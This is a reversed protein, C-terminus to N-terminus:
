QKGVGLIEFRFLHHGIRFIDGSLLEREGKFKISTGNSSGLDELMYKHNDIDHIIRTHRKSIYPDDPFIIDGIERGIISEKGNLYYINRIIGETTYQSLRAVWKKIPTGFYMVGHEKIPGLGKEAEELIEFLLLQTGILILDRNSLNISERIQIYIGNLSMLDKIFFKNEREIIRAHRPSLYPDDPLLINGQEKGIDTQNGILPFIQGISGDKLITLLRAKNKGADSVSGHVQTPEEKEDIFAVPSQITADENVIPEQDIELGCFKCFKADLEVLAYCRPCVKTSTRSNAKISDHSLLKGCMKCYNMSKKNQTNCGPCTITDKDNEPILRKGCDLCIERDQPNDKGCFPCQM